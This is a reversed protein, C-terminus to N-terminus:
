LASIRRSWETTQRWVDDLFEFVVPRNEIDIGTDRLWAVFVSFTPLMGTENHYEGWMGVLIALDSASHSLRVLRDVPAATSTESM